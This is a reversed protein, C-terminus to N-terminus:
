SPDYVLSPDGVVTVGDLPVAALITAYEVGDADAAFPAVEVLPQLAFRREHQRHM